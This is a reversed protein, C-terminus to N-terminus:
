SILTNILPELETFDTLRYDPNRALCAETETDAHTGWAANIIRVGVRHCHDIDTPADGVYIMEDATLNLRQM